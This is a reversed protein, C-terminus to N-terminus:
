EREPPEGSTADGDVVRVLVRGAADTVTFTGSDISVKTNNDLCIFGGHFGQFHTKALVRDLMHVTVREGIKVSSVARM